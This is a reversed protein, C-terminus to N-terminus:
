YYEGLRYGTTDHTFTDGFHYLQLRKDQDLQHNVYLSSILKQMELPHFYKKLDLEMKAVPTKPNYTKRLTMLVRAKESKWLLPRCANITTIYPSLTAKRIRGLLAVSDYEEYSIIGVFPYHKQELLKIVKDLKSDHCIVETYACTRVYGDLQHPLRKLTDHQTKIECATIGYTPNMILADAITHKYISKEFLIISDHSAEQGFVIQNQLIANKMQDNKLNDMM